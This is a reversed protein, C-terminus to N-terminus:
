VSEQLYEETKQGKWIKFLDEKLRSAAYRQMKKEQDTPDIRLTLAKDMNEAYAQPNRSDLVYGDIGEDVIDKASSFNTVCLPVCSGKAELLATSWGERFSCLYSYTQPM